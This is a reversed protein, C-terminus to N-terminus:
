ELRIIREFNELFMKIALACDVLLPPIYKYIDRIEIKVNHKRM